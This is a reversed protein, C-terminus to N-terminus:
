AFSVVLNVLNTFEPIIIVNQPFQRMKTDTDDIMITSLEDHGFAVKGATQWLRPLDRLTKWSEAALPDVKV